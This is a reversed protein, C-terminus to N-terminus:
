NVQTFALDILYGVVLCVLMRAVYGVLLEGPYEDTAGQAMM